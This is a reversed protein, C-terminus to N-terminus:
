HTIQNQIHELKSVMVNESYGLPIWCFPTRGSYIFDFEFCLNQFQSATCLVSDPTEIAEFVWTALEVAKVTLPKLLPM